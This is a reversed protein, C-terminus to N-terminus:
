KKEKIWLDGLVDIRDIYEYGNKKAYDLIESRTICLPDNDEDVRGKFPKIYNNDSGFSDKPVILFDVSVLKFLLDFINNNINNIAMASERICEFNYDVYEQETAEKGLCLFSENIYRKKSESKLEEKVEKKIEEKLQQEKQKRKFLWM